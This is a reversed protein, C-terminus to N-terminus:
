NWQGEKTCIFNLTDTEKFSGWKGGDKRVAGVKYSCGQDREQNSVWNDYCIIEGSVWFWFGLNCSYRLGVWVNPTSAGKAWGAVWRQIQESSVSVLDEHHQRCYELAEKWTKQEKVLVLKDNYCVFAHTKNCFRDFWKGDKRFVVCVEGTRGEPQNPGWNWFEAENQGDSWEWAERFLGIWFFQGAGTASKILDKIKNNEAQNRVSALDTYEDRCHSQAETWTMKNEVLVYPHTSNRENYCVFSCNQSKGFDHWKGEQNIGVYEEEPQLSPQKEDWNRFEAENEGYFSDAINDITALDTFEERCYQQAATWNKLDNVFHFRPGSKSLAGGGARVTTDM